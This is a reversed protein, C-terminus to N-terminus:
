GAFLSEKPAVRSHLSHAVLSFISLPESREGFRAVARARARSFSAAGLGARLSYKAEDLLQQIM